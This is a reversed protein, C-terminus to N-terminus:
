QMMLLENRMWHSRDGRDTNMKKDQKCKGNVLAFRNGNIKEGLRMRDKKDDINKEIM